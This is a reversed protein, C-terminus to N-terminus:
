IYNDTEQLFQNATNYFSKKVNELTWNHKIKDIMEPEISKIIENKKQKTEQTVDWFDFDLLGLYNLHSELDIDNLNMRLFDLHFDLPKSLDNSIEKISAKIDKTYRLETTLLVALLKAYLLNDNVYKDRKLELETNITKLAEIDEKYIKDKNRKFVNFVRKKANEIQWSM